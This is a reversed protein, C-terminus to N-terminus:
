NRWVFADKYGIGRFRQLLASSDSQNNLPGLLVRFMPKTDTGINQIALPFSRGIRLIEEEVNYFHEYAGVQVYYKGRELQNILPVQFPSFNAPPVYETRVPPPALYEPSTDRYSGDPIREKSPQMSPYITFNHTITRTAPTEETKQEEIATMTALLPPNLGNQEATKSDSSPISGNGNEKEAILNGSASPVDGNVKEAILGNSAAPVDGNVKEAILGNSAAPVDGNAKEAMFGSSATPVDNLVLVNSDVTEAEAIKNVEETPQNVDIAVNYDDEPPFVDPILEISPDAPAVPLEHMPENVKSADAVTNGELGRLTGNTVPGVVPGLKLQSVSIDHTSQSMRIRCSSSGSLDIADAAARSLTAMLGMTNLGSIVNVRVIKENELNIVEVTTNVPFSNTAISYGGGPLDGGPAITATGEWLASVTAIGSILMLAFVLIFTKKM